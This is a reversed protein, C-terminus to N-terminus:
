QRQQLGLRVGGEGHTRLGPEAAGRDVHSVDKRHEEGLDLPPSETLGMTYTHLSLHSVDSSGATTLIIFPIIVGFLEAPPWVSSTTTLTHKAQHKEHKEGALILLM